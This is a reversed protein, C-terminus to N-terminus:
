GALGVLVARPQGLADRADRAVHRAGADVRRAAGAGSPARRAAGFRDVVLDALGHAARDLGRARQLPERDRHQDVAAARVPALGPVRLRQALELLEGLARDAEGLFAAVLERDGGRGEPDAVRVAELAATRALPERRLRPRQEALAHAPRERE